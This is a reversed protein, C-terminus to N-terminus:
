STFQEIIYFRTSETSNKRAFYISIDYSYSCTIIEAKKENYYKKYSYSFFCILLEVKLM